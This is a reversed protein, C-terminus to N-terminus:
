IGLWVRERDGWDYLESLADNFTDVAAEDTPDIDELMEIAGMLAFAKEDETTKRRVLEAIEKGVSAVHVPNTNEQDRYLIPKINITKRWRAM